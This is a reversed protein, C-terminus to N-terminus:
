NGSNQCANKFKAWSKCYMNPQSKSTSQLTKILRLLSKKSKILTILQGCHYSGTPLNIFGITIQVETIWFSRTVAWCNRRIAQTGRDEYLHDLTTPSRQVPWLTGSLPYCHSMFQVWGAWGSSGPEKLVEQLMDHPRDRMDQLRQGNHQVHIYYVQYACDVAVNNALIRESKKRITYVSGQSSPGTEEWGRIRTAANLKSVEVCAKTLENM